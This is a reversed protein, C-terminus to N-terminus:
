SPHHPNDVKQSNTVKLRLLIPTLPLQSLIVLYSTKTKLGDSNSLTSYTNIFVVEFLDVAKTELFLLPIINFFLCEAIGVDLRGDCIKGPAEEKEFSEEDIPYM